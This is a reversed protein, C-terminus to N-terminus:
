AHGRKTLDRNCECWLFTNGGDIVSLTSVYPVTCSKSKFGVCPIGHLSKEKSDLGKASTRDQCSIPCRDVFFNESLRM